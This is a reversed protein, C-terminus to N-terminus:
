CGADKNIKHKKEKKTKKQGLAQYPCLCLWCLLAFSCLGLGWLGSSGFRTTTTRIVRKKRTSNTRRTRDEVEESEEADEGPLQFEAGAPTPTSEQLEVAQVTRNKGFAAGFQELGEPQFM